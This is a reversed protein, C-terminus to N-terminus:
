ARRAPAPHALQASSHVPNTQSADSEEWTGTTEDLEVIAAQGSPGGRCHVLEVQLRWAAPVNQRRDIKGPLNCVQGVQWQVDAWTPQGRFRAPRLLLGVSGGSEAALQLRRFDRGDFVGCPALVAGVGPCRLVQDLAWLEAADDAPQLILLGALDIGWAAAAAPYFTRRRDFVVLARGERCAERAAAMALTMAGCGPGPALYEVLSGRRLGGAPLLRDLLPSGCSLIQEDALPHHSEIREVKRRLAAVLAQRAPSSGDM